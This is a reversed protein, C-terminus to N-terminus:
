WKGLFIVEPELKFGHYKFVIKQVDEILHRMDAAKANGNNIFINAHFTSVQAEGISYAKLGLSDIIEGSSRGFSRNNKFTSGASPMKFHGKQIRDNRYTQMKKGILDVDGRSLTFGAKLIIMGNEQYPSYKYLFDDPSHDIRQIHGRMDMAEVWSIVDSVSKDYCRANMYVSGGVSGPMAYIFELGSLGYQQALEVVKSMAAGCEAVIVDNNVYIRNLERMLILLGEVGQDSVLVNAGEGLLTVPMGETVALKVLHSLEDQDLPIALIDAEGGIKFSTYEKVPHKKLIQGKINIKKIFNDITLM